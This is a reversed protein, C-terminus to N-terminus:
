KQIVLPGEAGVHNAEKRLSTDLLHQVRWINQKGDIEGTKKIPSKNNSKLGLDKGRTLLM